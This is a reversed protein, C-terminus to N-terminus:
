FATDLTCRNRQHVCPLYAEDQKQLEAEAVENNENM